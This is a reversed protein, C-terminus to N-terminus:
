DRKPGPLNKLTKVLHSRVYKVFNDLKDHGKDMDGGGYRTVDDPHIVYEGGAAVIPVPRHTNSIVGGGTARSAESISANGPVPFMLSPFNVSARFNPMEAGGPGESFMKSLIDSGAFDRGDVGLAIDAPLDRLSKLNASISKSSLGGGGAKHPLNHHHGFMEDLIKAGALTNGEGLGSVIDAPLVYSGELVHMPLHDTRGGVAMQIIGTHCPTSKERALKDAMDVHGGSAYQTAGVEPGSTKRVPTQPAQTEYAGRIFREGSSLDKPEWIRAIYDPNLGSTDAGVGLRRMQGGTSHKGSPPETYYIAQQLPRGPFLKQAEALSGPGTDETQEPQAQPRPQGLNAPRRPPLPVKANPYQTDTNAGGMAITTNQPTNGTLAKIFPTPATSTTAPASPTVPATPAPKGTLAGVFSNSSAPEVKNEPNNPHSWHLLDLTKEYFSKEHPKYAYESRDRPTIAQTKAADPSYVTAGVDDASSPTYNFSPVANYLSKATNTIYDGMNSLPNNDSSGRNGYRISQSMLRRMARDEPGGAVPNSPLSPLRNYIDTGIRRTYDIAGTPFLGSLDPGFDSNQFADREDGYQFADSM